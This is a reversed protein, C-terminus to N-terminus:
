SIVYHIQLAGNNMDNEMIEMYLKLNKISHFKLM